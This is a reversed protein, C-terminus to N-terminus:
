NNNKNLYNNLKNFLENSNQSNIIKSAENMKDNLTKSDIQSLMKIINNIDSNEM